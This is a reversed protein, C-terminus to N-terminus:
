RRRFKKILLSVLKQGLTALEAPPVPLCEAGNEETYFRKVAEAGDAGFGAGIVEIGAKTVKRIAEGLYWENQRHQAGGAPSGDSLVILIKRNEGREALRKAVFMVAEGDVNESKGTIALLNLKAREYPQDFGKFLDYEFPMYRVTDSDWCDGHGKSRYEVNTFGIIEFPVQIASLTEGLAIAALKAHYAPKDKCDGSGMSGSQDILIMVATDVSEGLIKSSFVRRNGQKLSYLTAEDLEGREQDPLRTAMARAKLLNRLKSRMFQIQSTLEGKLSAYVESANSAVEIKGFHDQRAIKPDVVWRQDGHEELDDKAAKELEKEIAKTLDDVKPDEELGKCLGDLDLDDNKAAVEGEGHASADGHTKEPEAAEDEVGEAGEAGEAKGSALDDEDKGDTGAEAEPAEEAGQNEQDDAAGSGSAPEQDDEGADDADDAGAGQEEGEGDEGHEGHKAQEEREKEAQKEHEKKAKEEREKKAKEQMAEVTRRVKAVTRRALAMVDVANQTTESDRLENGLMAMVAKIEPSLWSVDAGQAAFIIAVGIMEWHGLTEGQKAKERYQKVLHRLHERLNEATGPEVSAMQREIRLDEFVNFMLRTTADKEARIMGLPSQYTRSEKAKIEEAAHGREHDLKAHLLRRDMANLQDANGPLYITDGDFCCATGGIHVKVQYNRSMIRALKAFEGEMKLLTNTKAM